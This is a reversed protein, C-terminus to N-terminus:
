AGKEHQVYDFIGAAKRLTAHVEKAERDSVEDKAAARAAYKMLWM